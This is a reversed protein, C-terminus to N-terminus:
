TRAALPLERCGRGEGWKWLNRAALPLERYGREDMWKWLNRAALLLERYSRGPRGKRWVRATRSLGEGEGMGAM